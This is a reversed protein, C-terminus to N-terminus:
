RPAVGPLYKAAAGEVVEATLPTCALRALAGPAAWLIRGAEPGPTGEGSIWEGIFSAIVFHRRIKGSEDREISEVHRNFGVIRAEVQVEEALERLAATELTEGAEVLGGPLSFDGAFPPRTRTALLVEGARFVAISVALFPYAPYLRVAEPTPEGM